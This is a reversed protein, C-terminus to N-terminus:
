SNPAVASALVAAIPLLVDPGDAYPSVLEDYHRHLEARVEPTQRGILTGTRPTSRLTTEWWEGPAVRLTGSCSNVSVSEFGAGRLLAAFADNDGLGFMPPGSPMDDPPAVGAREIAEYFVGLARNVSAQDWVTFAVRGGGRLVRRAEAAAREPHGLHLLVFNAVVPM